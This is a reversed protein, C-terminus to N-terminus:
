SPKGRYSLPWRIAQRIPWAGIVLVVLTLVPIVATLTETGARAAEAALVAGIVLLVASGASATLVARRRSVASIGSAVLVIAPLLLLQDYSWQYPAVLLSLTMWIGLGAASDPRFLAGITLVTIGSVVLLALGSPGLVGSLLAAVTTTQPPDFLRHTGLMGVWALPWTPLIVLSAAILGAATLLAAGGFAPAHALGRAHLLLAPYTLAFLHPKALLAVSLIGAIIPRRRLLVTVVSLVAVLLFSWQGLFTATRATQSGFLMLGALTHVLPLDPTWARVLVRVGLAALALGAFTWLASAIELPLAALPILAVAVWGPYGFVPSDARGGLMAALAPWDAVRYPDYGELIARSGVWFTAFDNGSVVGPSRDLYGSWVLLVAGLGLGVAYPAEQALREKV